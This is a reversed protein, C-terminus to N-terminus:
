EPWRRHIWLWHEPRARVWAEIMANVGTMIALVDAATDGTSVLKIEPLVTLRFRAGELRETRIPVLACNFRLGLRAVAPATMAAHGFFPVDIGDNQKQDVLMALHGGQRLHRLIERSGAAGKPVVHRSRLIRRMLREVYPNNAARYVSLVSPGLVGHVITPGIEWNGLHGGFLVHPVHNRALRALADGNVVEVRRSQPACIRALHPYEAISRGLNEWMAHLIRRNEAVGNEPLARALNRLARRSLRLRPGITRGIRGGLTSAWEVPLAAFFAAAVILLAVEIVLSVRRRTELAGAVVAKWSGRCRRASLVWAKM